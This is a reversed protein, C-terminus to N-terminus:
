NCARTTPCARTPHVYTAGDATVTRISERGTSWKFCPYSNKNKVRRHGFWSRLDSSSTYLQPEKGLTLAAFAHLWGTM